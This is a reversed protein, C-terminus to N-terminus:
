ARLHDGIIAGAALTVEQFSETFTYTPAPVGPQGPVNPFQNPYDGVHRANVSVFGETTPSIAFSYKVNVAGQFSPFALQIGEVAGSIAAEEPTLETVETDNVSGNIGIVLGEFPSAFIEFEF